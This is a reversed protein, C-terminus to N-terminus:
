VIKTPCIGLPKLNLMGIKFSYKFYKKNMEYMKDLILYVLKALCDIKVLAAITSAIIM